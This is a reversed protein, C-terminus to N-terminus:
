NLWLIIKLLNPKLIKQEYERQFKNEIISIYRSGTLKSINLFQLTRLYKGFFGLLHMISLAYLELIPYFLYVINHQDITYVLSLIYLNRLLIYFIFFFEILVM